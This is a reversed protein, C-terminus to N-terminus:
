SRLAGLRTLLLACAEEGRKVAEADGSAEARRLDLVAEKHAKRIVAEEFANLLEDAAGEAPLEGFIAEIEFLASEPPPDVPLERAETIRCYESKVRLALPTEPYAHLVALLQNERALVHSLRAQEPERVPRAAVEVSGARKIRALSERVAEDSLGLTRATAQVFHDREMPSQMAAILPLVVAEAFRLLRHSDKEREALEALFFDVVPKGTAIRRAFEKPDESVMDAPDTGKPLRAAKVRLGQGLALEASRATAKLGAADADLVLMLNESFRKMLALHKETLATGSLAVANGFGAQQVLLVDMQGEVLMTFGRQRIFEKAKDMGFLIESKHYLDTEPSNLYKAPDDPALARGTFGVVRGAIDRIPFMLRHRFRDYYTGPKGDAEKVLGAALLEAVTFGEASLAELLMRWGEPAYGLRWNKITDDSLGRKKAYAHAPSGALKGAYWESARSLLARLREKKETEAHSQGGHGSIIKVGAKDALIKLAGKFDVGEIKEIFSFGDGGEGCGFCHWTGRELSVHFSGTKEKHFPCLGVLSRGARKLKVYPAIIDQISLREKIQQVTDSM